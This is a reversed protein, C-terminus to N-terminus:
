ISQVASRVCASEHASLEALVLQAGGAPALAHVVPPANALQAQRKKENEEALMRQKRQSMFAFVSCAICGGVVILVLMSGMIGGGVIGLSRPTLRRRRFAERSIWIVRLYSMAQVM